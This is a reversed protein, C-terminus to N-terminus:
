AFFATLEEPNYGEERITTLIRGLKNLGEGDVMGWYRDSDCIICRNGTLILKRMLDPNQNFKCRCIEYMYVDKVRSWDSRIDLSMLAKLIGQKFGESDMRALEEKLKNDEIMQCLFAREASPYEVGKYTFPAAYKIDLYYFAGKFENIM